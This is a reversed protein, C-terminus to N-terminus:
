KTFPKGGYEDLSRRAIEQLIVLLAPITMMRRVWGSLVQRLLFSVRRPTLNVIQIVIIAMQVNMVIIVVIARPALAYPMM